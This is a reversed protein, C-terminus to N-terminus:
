VEDVVAAAEFFGMLWDDAVLDLVLHVRDSTGRNAVAHPDGLRLYWAQGEGMEVRTRNLLFEVDPNTTVPVHIRAAGTEVGLDLDTHEKIVSGSTLRMLRVSRVECAFAAIVDRFYPCPELFPTDVFETAAPDSYIMRIPHTEGAACRLPIVSWDGEYNQRVFHATWPAAALADLDRQLLGPDFSFPLQLRDPYAM